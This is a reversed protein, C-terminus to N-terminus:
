SRCTRRNAKRQDVVLGHPRRTLRCAKHGSGLGYLRALGFSGLAVEVPDNDPQSAASDAIRRRPNRPTRCDARDGLSSVSSLPRRETAVSSDPGLDAARHEGKEERTEISIPRRRRGMEIPTVPNSGAAEAVWVGREEM